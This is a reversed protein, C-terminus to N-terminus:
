PVEQRKWGSVVRCGLAPVDLAFTWYLRAGRAYTEPLDGEPRRSYINEERQISPPSVEEDFAPLQHYLVAYRADPVPPREIRVRFRVTRSDAFLPVFTVQGDLRPFRELESALARCAM